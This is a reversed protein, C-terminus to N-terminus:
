SFVNFSANKLKRKAIQGIKLQCKRKVAYQISPNKCVHHSSSPNGSSNWVRKCHNLEFNKPYLHFPQLFSCTLKFLAVLICIGAALM